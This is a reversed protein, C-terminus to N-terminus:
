AAVAVWACSPKSACRVQKNKLVPSDDGYALKVSDECFQRHGAIPLYEATVRSM